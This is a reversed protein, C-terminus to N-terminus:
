ATGKPPTSQLLRQAQRDPSRLGEALANPVFAAEGAKQSFYHAALREYMAALQEPTTVNRSILIEQLAEIVGIFGAVSEMTVKAEQDAM